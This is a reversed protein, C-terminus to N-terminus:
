NNDRKKPVLDVAEAVSIQNGHLLRVRKLIADPGINEGKRQFELAILVRTIKRDPLRTRLSNIINEFDSKFRARDVIIEGLQHGRPRKAKDDVRERMMSILAAPNNRCGQCVGQPVRRRKQYDYDIAHATQRPTERTHGCIHYRIPVCTKSAQSYLLDVRGVNLKDELKKKPDV